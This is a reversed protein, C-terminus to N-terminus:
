WRPPRGSPASRAPPRHRQPPAPRAPPHRSLAELLRERPRPHGGAAAGLGQDAVAAHRDVALHGLEALRGVGIRIGDRDIAPGDPLRLCGDMDRHVLRAAVDGRRLVLSPPLAHHAQQVAGSTADPARRHGAPRSSTSESPSITSVLSPAHAFRSSCGRYAMSRSYATSSSRAGCGSSSTASSSPTWSSSPGARRSVARGAAGGRSTIRSGARPRGNAAPEAHALPALALHPTENPATPSRTMRSTRTRSPGSVM